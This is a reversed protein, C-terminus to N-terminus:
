ARLRKLEHQIKNALESHADISLAKEWIKRANENQKTQKFALGAFYFIAQRTSDSLGHDGKELQSVLIQFDKRANDRRNVFSPLHFNNIARIFRVAPQDPAAEVARDMTKLGDKLYNLKSPGPFADRSALTYSSGLYALLLFNDPNQRSSAELLVILEKTAHKDGKEAKEHLGHIALINPDQFPDSHNGAFVTASASLIAGSAIFTLLTV